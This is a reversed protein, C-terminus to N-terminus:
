LDATPFLGLLGCVRGAIGRDDCGTVFGSRSVTRASRLVRGAIGRDDCFSSNGNAESIPSPKKTGNRPPPVATLHLHFRDKAPAKCCAIIYATSLWNSATPSAWNTM